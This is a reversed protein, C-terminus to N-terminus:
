RDESSWYWYFSVVFGLSFILTNVWINLQHERSLINMEPILETNRDSPRTLGMFVPIFVIFAVSKYLLISESFTCLDHVMLLMLPIYLWTNVFYM